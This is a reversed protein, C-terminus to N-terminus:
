NAESSSREHYYASMAAEVIFNVESETLWFGDWSLRKATEGAPPVMAKGSPDTSFKQWLFAKLAFHQDAPTLITFPEGCITQFAKWYQRHFKTTDRAAKPILGTREHVQIRKLYNGREFVTLLLDCILRFATGDKVTGGTESPQGHAPHWFGGAARQELPISCETHFGKRYVPNAQVYATHSQSVAALIDMTIDPLSPGLMSDLKAETYHLLSSPVQKSYSSDENLYTTVARCGDGM